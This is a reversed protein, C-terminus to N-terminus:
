LKLASTKISLERMMRVEHLFDASWRSGAHSKLVPRFSWTAWTAWLTVVVAAGLWHSWVPDLAEFLVFVLHVVPWLLLRSASGHISFSDKWSTSQPRLWRPATLQATTGAPFCALVRHQRYCFLIPSPIWTCGEPVGPCYNCSHCLPLLWHLDGGYDNIAMSTKHKHRISTKWTKYCSFLSRM